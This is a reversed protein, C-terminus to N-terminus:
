SRRFILVAVVLAAVVFGPNFITKSAADGIKTASQTFSKFTLYGLLALGVTAIMRVITEVGAQSIPDGTSDAVKEWEVMVAWPQARGSVFDAPVRFGLTGANDARELSAPDLFGYSRVKITGKAEIAKVMSPGIFNLFGFGPFPPFRVVFHTLYADGVHVPAAAAVNLTPPM